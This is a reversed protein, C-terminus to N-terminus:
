NADITPWSVEFDLEDDAADSAALEPASVSFEPGDSSAPLVDRSLKPVLAASAIAAGLGAAIALSAFRRLLGTRTNKQKWQQQVRPALTALAAKESATMPPLAADALLQASEAAFATCQECGSRHQNLEDNLPEGIVLALEVDECISM